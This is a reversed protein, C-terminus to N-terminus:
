VKHNDIIFGERQLADIAEEKSRIVYYPIAEEEFWLQVIGQHLSQKNRGVKFELGLGKDNKIFIYDPMGRVKGMCALKQGFLPSKNNAVQHAIHTGIGKINRKVKQEVYWTWFEFCEKEEPLFRIHPTKGLNPLLLSLFSSESLL